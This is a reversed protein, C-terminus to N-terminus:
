RQVPNNKHFEIKRVLSQAAQRIEETEGETSLRVIEAKMEPKMEKESYDEDVKHHQRLCYSLWVADNTAFTGRNFWQELMRVMEKPDM